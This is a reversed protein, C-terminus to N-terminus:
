RTRDLTRNWISGLFTSDVYVDMQFSDTKMPKMIMGENMTGKLYQGICILALEHSCRPAFMFWAALSMAFGLNPRSHGYLYWLMGIVSMYNFSCNPPDRDMDKGLASDAPTSVTPLDKVQLAEIIWKTLGKQTLKIYDKTQEIHVGLFGTVNDEETMEVGLNCLHKLMNDIDNNNKMVMICDDVYTLCIVKDSIFICLDVEYAQWFGVRELKDKLFKFFDRPSQQLGHLSEQTQTCTCAQCLRLADWRTSRPMKTGWQVNWQLQTAPWHRCTHLCGHLRATKNGARITSHTHPATTCHDLQSGTCVHWLLWSGWDTQWRM